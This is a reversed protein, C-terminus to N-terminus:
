RQSHLKNNPAYSLASRSASPFWLNGTGTRSSGIHLFSSEATIAQSIDTQRHIPYFHYHPTLFIGEGKGQLGTIWSHEHFFFLISFFCCFRKNDILVVKVLQYYINKGPFENINSSIVMLFNMDFATSLEIFYNM